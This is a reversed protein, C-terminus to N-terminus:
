NITAEIRRKLKQVLDDETEWVVAQKQAIDFHPQKAKDPSDREAKRGCVIVQKGLAQAYGAEYYAGLNPETVDVVVFKSRGIEYFMEPVIQNNHEQEDSIYFAYGSETIARKIAERIPRMEEAFSMAIFGQRIEAEKHHLEDIKEWGKATIRYTYGSTRNLLGMDKLMLLVGSKSGTNGDHEFYLRRLHFDSFIIDGYHPAFISLNLLARYAVENVTLPYSPIREAINIFNVPDTDKTQYNPSYYFHWRKGGCTKQRILLETILDLAKEKISDGDKFGLLDNDLLFSFDLTTCQIWEYGKYTSEQSCGEEKGCIPCVSNM